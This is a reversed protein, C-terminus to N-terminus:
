LPCVKNEVFIYIFVLIDNNLKIFRCIIHQKRIRLISILFYAYYCKLMHKLYLIAM